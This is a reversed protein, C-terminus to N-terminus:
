PEFIPMEELDDVLTGLEITEQEKIVEEIRKGYEDVSLQLGSSMNQETQKFEAILQEVSTNPEAIDSNGSLENIQKIHEDTSQQTELNLNQETQRHETVPQGVFTGLEAIDSERILEEIRGTHEDRPQQMGLTLDHEAQRFETVLEEISSNRIEERGIREVPGSGTPVGTNHFEWEMLNDNYPNHGWLENEYQQSESHEPAFLNYQHMPVETNSTGPMMHNNYSDHNYVANEYQQLESYESVPPIYQDMPANVDYMEINNEEHPDSPNWTAVLIKACATI